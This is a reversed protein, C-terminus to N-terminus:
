IQLERPGRHHLLDPFVDPLMTQLVAFVLPDKNTVFLQLCHELSLANIAESHIPEEGIVQARLFLHCLDLLHGSLGNAELAVWLQEGKQWNRGLLRSVQAM